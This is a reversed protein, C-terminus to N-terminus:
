DGEVTGHFTCDFSNEKLIEAIELISNVPIRFTCTKM